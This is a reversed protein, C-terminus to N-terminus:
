KGNNITYIRYNINGYVSDLKPGKEAIDQQVKEMHFLSDTQSGLQYLMFKYGPTRLVRLFVTDTYDEYMDFKKMGPYHPSYMEDSMTNTMLRFGANDFKFSNYLFKDGPKKHAKMWDAAEFLGKPVNPQEKLVSYQMAIKGIFVALLVSFAGTRIFRNKGILSNISVAMFPLLLFMSASFYRWAPETQLRLVKWTIMGLLFLGTTLWPLETKRKLALWVGHALFLLMWFPIVMDWLMGQFIHEFHNPIVTYNYKVELDSMTLGHILHDTNALSVVIYIIINLSNMFGYQIFRKFGKKYYLLYFPLLGSLMWGEFRIQDCCTLALASLILFSFHEEQIYEFLFWLATIAFFLFPVETMTIVSYKIHFPNVALLFCTILAITENFRRKVLFYLVPFTLMGLVLTVYTSGKVIDINFFCPIMLLFFHLPLWILGGPIGQHTFYFDRAVEIRCMADGESIILPLTAAHFLRLVFALIFICAFMANGSPIYRYIGNIKLDLERAHQKIYRFCLYFMGAVPTVRLIGFLALYTHPFLRRFRYFDEFGVYWLTDFVSKIFSFLHEILHFM